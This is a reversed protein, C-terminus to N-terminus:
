SREAILTIQIVYKDYTIKSVIKLMDKTHTM